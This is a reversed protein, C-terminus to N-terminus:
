YSIKIESNGLFIFIFTTSIVNKLLELWEKTGDDSNNDVIIIEYEIGRSECDEYLEKFSKEIFRIENYVCLIISLKM